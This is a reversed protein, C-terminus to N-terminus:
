ENIKIAEISDILEYEEYIIESPLSDVINQNIKFEIQAFYGNDIQYGAKRIHGMEILRNEKFNM